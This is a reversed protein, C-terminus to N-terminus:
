LAPTDSNTMDINKYKIGHPTKLEPPLLLTSNIRPKVNRHGPECLYM